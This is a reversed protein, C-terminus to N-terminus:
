GKPARRIAWAAILPGALEFVVTSGIALAMITDGHDPLQDAAILAMGIAVGAQPLLAPGYYRTETGPRGALRGGVIGGLGRSLARLLIYALGLPGIAWLADSELTAGALIFFVIMFPWHISEIEHFAKTHHRAMNVIVAGVTMGTILYSLDLWVSLGATVFVLGLAEIRLPEGGSLRGTLFAAPVGIVLGLGVSLAIELLAQLLVPDGNTKGEIAMALVIMLSFVILGWADDIAVIGKLTRTFGSDVRSERVVDLTAAPDTATALAGIILAISLPLGVAWLGLTVVLLSVIVIALSITVIARGHAQLNRVSLESGLLFAIMSLAIVSIMPYLDTLAPPILDFGTGGVILGCFLLLTVRPLRTRRGAQDAALGLLFIFGLSLFLTASQEM